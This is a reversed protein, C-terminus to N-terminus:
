KERHHWTVNFLSNEFIRIERSNFERTNFKSRLVCLERPQQQKCENAEPRRFQKYKFLLNSEHVALQFTTSDSCKTGM